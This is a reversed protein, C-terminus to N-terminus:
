RERKVMSWEGNVMRTKKSGLFGVLWSVLCIGIFFITMLVISFKSIAMKYALSVEEQTVGNTFIKMMAMNEVIDFIGAIFILVAFLRGTKELIDNGCISSLFRCGSAITVTYLFIFIYDLYVSTVAPAFKGNEQWKQIIGDAVDTSKAMEFSVIDGSQLPSLFHKMWFMFGITLPLFILFWWKFKGTRDPVTSTM